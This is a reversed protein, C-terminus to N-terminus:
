LQIVRNLIPIHDLLKDTTYKMIFARITGCVFGALYCVVVVLLIHPIMWISGILKSIGLVGFLRRHVFYVDFAKSSLVNIWKISRPKLKAVALFLMVAAIVNTIFAYGFPNIFLSVFATILGFVCYLGFAGFVSIKKLIGCENLFRGMYGGLIYLTIFHLIGYGDDTIPSKLGTSYWASFLLLQVVILIRYHKMSISLLLKNMFPAILILIIYTRAFWVGGFMFPFINKVLGLVSFEKQKFVVDILYLILGYFMIILILNLAKRISWKASHVMFYGTIIVFVNVLPIAISRVANVFFWNFNPYAMYAEVGGMDKHVYHLAVVGMMCVIRLLEINSNREKTNAM